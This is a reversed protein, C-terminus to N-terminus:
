SLNIAIVPGQEEELRIWAKEALIKEAGKISHDCAHGYSVKDVFVEVVYEKDHGIRKEDVVKFEINKKEKQGWEILRSKYNLESHELHDLDLHTNIIHHIIVHRAFRYGRDLYMAGIFAEFADGKMSRALGNTEPSAQILLDLGLKRSLKNLQTRCVLKSRMETLFGEEKSPFRKFLLDAVVASLVADGLYELRENSLRTGNIFETSASKHRLALKYPFINGPWFGFINHISQRLARDSSFIARISYLADPIM